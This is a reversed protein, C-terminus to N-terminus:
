KQSVRIRTATEEVRVGKLSRLFALFEDSNETTFTGTVELTKLKPTLIEIPKSAYRNFEAAVRELPEHNFAIQRHLWATAGRADVPAPTVPWEDPHVTVQQDAGVEIFRLRSRQNPAPSQGSVMPVPEVAVRGEVVTVVAADNTLRVEFKTGLATAEAPGAIVHFPRGADPSVEFAAQGAALMVLRQTRTYQVTASTGTNLYIISNDALRHIQQEGHRTAFRLATSEARAPVSPVLRLNWVLLLAVSALALAAITVASIRWRRVPLEGAAALLRPWLPQVQGDRDAQARAVLAEVSHEPDSAACVERAIAAVGLFEKVNTPSAKYWAVLAASERADLAGADHTVFWDVAQRAANAPTQEQGSTM